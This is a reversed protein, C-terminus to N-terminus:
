FCVVGCLDAREAVPIVQFLNILYAWACAYASTRVSASLQQATAPERSAAPLCAAVKLMTQTLNEFKTTLGSFRSLRAWFYVSVLGFLLRRLVDTLVWFACVTWWEGDMTWRGGDETGRGSDVTLLARSLGYNHTIDHGSFPLEFPETELCCSFKSMLRSLWM